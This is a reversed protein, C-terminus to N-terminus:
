GVCKMNYYDIKKDLEWDDTFPGEIVENTEPDESIFEDLDNKMLAYFSTGDFVIFWTNM